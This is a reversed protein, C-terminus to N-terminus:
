RWWQEVCDNCTTGPTGPLGPGVPNAPNPVAPVAPPNGGPAVGACAGLGCDCIIRVPITTPPVGGTSTGTVICVCGPTNWWFDNPHWGSNFCTWPRPTVPYTSPWAPQWPWWPESDTWGAAVGGGCGTATNVVEISTGAVYEAHAMLLETPDIATRAAFPGDVQGNIGDILLFGCDGRQEGKSQVGFTVVLLPLSGYKGFQADVRYVTADIHNVSAWNSLKQSLSDIASLSDKLLHSSTKMADDQASWSPALTGLQAIWTATPTNVDTYQKSGPTGATAAPTLDESTVLGQSITLSAQPSQAVAQLHYSSAVTDSLSTVVTASSLYLAVDESIAGGNAPTLTASGCGGTGKAEGIVAAAARIPSYLPSNMAASSFEFSSAGNAPVGSNKFEVYMGGWVKLEDLQSSSPDAYLVSSQASAVGCTGACISMCVVLSRSLTRSLM